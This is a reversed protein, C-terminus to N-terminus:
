AKSSVLIASYSGDAQLTPLNLLEKVMKFEPHATLFKKIQVRDEEIEISCTSYIIVGQESVLNACNNLIDAQIKCIDRLSQPSFRWLADPRKRFVGTNSCPVDAFVIDFKKDSTFTIADGIEINAELNRKSLNEKTLEQRKASKDLITLELQGKFLESVMIAKGGPAGCLDIFSKYNQKADLLSIPYSTAVDQIYITGNNLLESDLVKAIQTAKYWSFINNKLEIKEAGLESLEDSSLQYDLTTRFTFDASEGYLKAFNNVRAEGFASTWRRKIYSPLEVNHLEPTRLSKRLIANVLKSVGLSYHEKSYEVFANISSEPRIVSQYNCHSIGISIFNYLERNSNKQLNALLFKDISAKHRFYAFFLHSVTRRLNRNKLEFDLFDDLSKKQESILNLGHVAEQIIPFVSGCPVNSTDNQTNM